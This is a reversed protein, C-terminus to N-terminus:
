PIMKDFAAATPNVHDKKQILAVHREPLEEKTKVVFVHGSEIVPAAYELFVCGIGMNREAFLLVQRTTTAEIVPELDLGHQAFYSNYFSFTEMKRWLTIWPYSGLKKLPIDKTRLEKFSLGAVIVDHFTYLIRQSIDAKEKGDSSIIALDLLGDKVEQVLLLTPKNLVRIHIDPYLSHFKALSSLFHSGVLSDTIEISLGISLEGRMLKQGSLLSEEGAALQEQAIQVHRFLAEGERTLVAGKHSREFLRCGLREELISIARTLNPQSNGLEKAAKNFSGSKAVYYFYKYYEYSNKVAM